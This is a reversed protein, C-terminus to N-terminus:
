LENRDFRRIMEGAISLAPAYEPLSGRTFWAAESIENDDILIAQRDDAEAVFGVMLSGSLPWPQDAYYRINRVDLGVEEKVERAVARELTEGADVYGSVLSYWSRGTKGRILLIREGCVVAVIIAPAIDPYVVRSCSSCGIAREETLPFAPAGCRGCFRHNLYWSYLHYGVLSSWALLQVPHKRFLSLDQFVLDPITEGPKGLLLFCPTNELSFLFRFESEEPVEPFDNRRPIVLAGDEWKWLLTNEQYHFVFDDDGPVVSPQFRIDLTEPLIEHIM